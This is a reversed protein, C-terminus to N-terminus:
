PGQLVHHRRDGGELRTWGHRAGAVRRRGSRCDGPPRSSGSTAVGCSTPSASHFETAIATGCDPGMVLLQERAYVTAREDAVAVNDSFLMRQPGPSRRRTIARYRSSRWGRGRCASPRAISALAPPVRDHRRESGVVASADRRGRDGRRVRVARRAVVLLDSPAVATSRVSRRGRASRRNRAAMVRHKRWVKGRPPRAGLQM